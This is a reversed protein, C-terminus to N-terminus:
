GQSCDQVPAAGVGGRPQDVHQVAGLAPLRSRHGGAPACRWLHRGHPLRLPPPNTALCSAPHTPLCLSDHTNSSVLQSGGTLAADEPLTTGVGAAGAPNENPPLAFGCGAFYPLALHSPGLFVLRGGKGLLMVDDFMRFISFRPQLLPLCLSLALTPVHPPLLGSADYGCCQCAAAECCLPELGCLTSAKCPLCGQPLVQHVVTIVNMGLRAMRM